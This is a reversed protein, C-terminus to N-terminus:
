VYVKICEWLSECPTYRALIGGWDGEFNYGLKRLVEIMKGITIREALLGLNFYENGESDTRTCNGYQGFLTAVKKQREFDLTNLEEVSLCQKM